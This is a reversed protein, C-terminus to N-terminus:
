LQIGQDYYGLIKKLLEGVYFAVKFLPLLLTKITPLFGCLPIALYFERFPLSHGDVGGKETAPDRLDLEATSPLCAGQSPSGWTLSLGFSLSFRPSSHSVLRLFVGFLSTQSTINLGSAAIEERYFCSM